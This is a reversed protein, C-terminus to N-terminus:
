QISDILDNVEAPSAKVSTEAPADLDPTFEKLALSGQYDAAYGYEGKLQKQLGAVYNSTGRGVWGNWVDQYKNERVGLLVKVENGSLPKVLDNLQSVDGSKIMDVIDGDMIIKTDEKNPSKDAWACIFEYLAVEGGYAKRPNANINFYKQREESLDAINTTWTSQTQDNIFQFNGNQSERFKDELFFAVKTVIDLDLGAQNGVKLFVDVRLKNITPDEKDVSKYVPTKVSDTGYLAKLQKEDPNFAIVKANALGTYLKYGESPTSGEIKM